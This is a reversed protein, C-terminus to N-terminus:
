PCSSRWARWRRRRRWGSSCASSTPPPAGYGSCPHKPAQQRTLVLEGRDRPRDGSGHVAGAGHEHQFARRADALGGHEFRRARPPPAVRQHQVRPRALQVAPEPEPEHVLQEVPRRVGSSIVPAAACARRRGRDRRRDGGLVRAERHQVAEVPQGRVEGVVPGDHESASSRCQASTGESRKRSYRARRMSPRRTASIAVVRGFSGPAAFSRSSSSRAEAVTTRGRGSRGRPRPRSARGGFDHVGRELGGAAVREQQRHERTLHGPVSATVGSCSASSPARPTAGVTSRRSRGRPGVRDRRGRPRPAPRARSPPRCRRRRRVSLCAITTASLREVPEVGHIDQVPAGEDM